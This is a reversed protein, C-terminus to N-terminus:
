RSYKVLFSWPELSTAATHRCYYSVMGAPLPWPGVQPRGGSAANAMGTTFKRNANNGNVYLTAENRAEAATGIGSVNPDNVIDLIVCGGTPIITFQQNTILDEAWGDVDLAVRAETAKNFTYRKWVVIGKASM